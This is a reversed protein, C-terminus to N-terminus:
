LAVAHTSVEERHARAGHVGITHNVAAKAFVQSHLFSAFQSSAGDVLGGIAIGVASALNVEVVDMAVSPLPDRLVVHKLQVKFILTLFHLPLPQTYPAPNPLLLSSNFASRM